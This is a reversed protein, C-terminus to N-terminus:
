QNIVEWQNITEVITDVQSQINDTDNAIARIGILAEVLLILVCAIILMLAMIASDRIKDVM